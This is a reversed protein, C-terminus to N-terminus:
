LNNDEDVLKFELLATKNIINVARQADRVGPLQVLIRNDQQPRIDPESVGFQDIRNRITELAQDVAMREVRKVERDELFMNYSIDGDRGTYTLKFSDSYPRVLKEFASRDEDRMLVVSIGDHGSREMKRYRLKETRFEQKLEEVVREIHNEVAKSVKVDLTLHIGGQLDLGLSIKDKPLIKSWWGPMNEMLSPTIYIFSGFVAILVVLVRWTLKRKM